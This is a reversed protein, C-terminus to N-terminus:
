KIDAETVGAPLLKPAYASGMYARMHGGSRVVLDDQRIIMHSRQSQQSNSASTFTDFYSGMLQRLDPITQGRWTVAFVTGMTTMYERVITGSTLTMEHVMFKENAVRVPVSAKMQMRDQDISAIDGGLAAGANSSFLSLVVVAMAIAPIRKM